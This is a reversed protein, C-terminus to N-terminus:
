LKSTTCFNIQGFIWSSFKFVNFPNQIWLFSTKKLSIESWVQASNYLNRGLLLHVLNQLLVRWLLLLQVGKEFLSCFPGQMFDYNCMSGKINVFLDKKLCNLCLICLISICSSYLCRPHWLQLTKQHHNWQICWLHYVWFWQLPMNM